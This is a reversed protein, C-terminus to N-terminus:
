TNVEPSQPKQKRMEHGKANGRLAASHFQADDGCNMVDSDGQDCTVSTHHDM